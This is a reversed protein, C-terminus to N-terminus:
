HLMSSAPSSINYSFTYAIVQLKRSRFPSNQYPPLLRPKKTLIAHSSAVVCNKRQSCSFHQKYYVVGGGVSAGGCPKSHLQRCTTCGKRHLLIDGKPICQKPGNVMCRKLSIQEKKFVNKIARHCAFLVLLATCLTRRDNVRLVACRRPPQARGSLRTGTKYQYKIACLERLASQIPSSQFSSTTRSSSITREVCTLACM